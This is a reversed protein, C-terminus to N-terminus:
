KWYATWHMSAGVSLTDAERRRPQDGSGESSYRSRWWMIHRQNDYEPAWCERDSARLTLCRLEDRQLHANFRTKLHTNRPRGCWLGLSEGCGKKVFAVPNVRKGGLEVKPGRIPLDLALNILYSRLGNYNYDYAYNAQDIFSAVAQISVLPAKGPVKFLLPTVDKGVYAYIGCSERIADNAMFSKEKNVEFGLTSLCDITNSTIRTDLILDDGYCVFPQLLDGYKGIGPAIISMVNSFDFGQFLNPDDAAMGRFYAIYQLLIVATYITSQVPFCLASGMPAFKKMQFITGDPLEVMSTRTALLHKLVKAPFTRFVLEWLVSDSASSLDVTDVLCTFSGLRAMSRSRDQRKLDVFFRFPGQRLWDEYVLRVAQQAWAKARPEMCISRTTKYNKPVFKLRAAQKCLEIRLSGDPTLLGIADGFEISSKSNFYTYALDPTLSFGDCKQNFTRIGREAVSGTGHRPLFEEFNWGEDFAWALLTRLNKIIGDPLEVKSIRSEVELWKRLSLADLDARDFFFKKGFYCFTLLFRLLTPSGTKYFEHYERFIPTDRFERLFSRIVITEGNLELSKLLSDGLVAYRAISDFLCRENAKVFAYLTRVPKVDNLPSDSLLSLWAESVLQASDFNTGLTQQLNESPLITGFHYKFRGGRSPIDAGRTAIM